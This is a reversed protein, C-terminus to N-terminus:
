KRGHHKVTLWWGQGFRNYGSRRMGIFIGVSSSRFDIMDEGVLDHGKSGM